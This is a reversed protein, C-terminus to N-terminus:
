DLYLPYIDLIDTENDRPYEGYVDGDQPEYYGSPYQYNSDNDSPYAGGGGGKPRYGRPYSYTSDNDQPYPPHPTRSLRGRPYVYDSDNDEYAPPIRPVYRKPPVYAADNDDPYGGNVIREYAASHKYELQPAPMNCGPLALTLASVALFFWPKKTM